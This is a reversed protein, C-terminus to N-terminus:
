LNWCIAQLEILLVIAYLPRSIHLFDHLLRRAPFVDLGKNLANM